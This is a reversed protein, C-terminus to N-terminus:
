RCWGDLAKEQIKTRLATIENEHVKRYFDSLGPDALEKQRIAIYRNLLSCASEPEYFMPGYKPYVSVSQFRHEGAAELLARGLSAAEEKTLRVSEFRSTGYTLLDVGDTVETMRVKTATGDNITWSRSMSVAASAGVALLAVLFAGQRWSKLGVAPANKM